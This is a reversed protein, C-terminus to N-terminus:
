LHIEVAVYRGVQREWKLLRYKRGIDALISGAVAIIAPDGSCVVSDGRNFNYASLKDKLTKILDASQFFAANAPLMTVIQGHEAAPGINFAPVWAGTMKDKRNPVQTVFVIRPDSPQNM